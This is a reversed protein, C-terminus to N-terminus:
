KWCHQNVGALGFFSIGVPLEEVFGMPVTIIPYGAMAAPGSSGLQFSDGNIHDTKWAPSGTPAIIADLNLEAMVKDIGNTQAGEQMSKLAKQYSESPLNEKENAMELYAQNFFQLEVSDQHNFDILENLNKIRAKPGLSQLYQNLGNKYEFLMVEFSHNGTGSEVLQEIKILEAGAAM